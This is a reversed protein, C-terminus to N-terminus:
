YPSGIGVMFEIHCGNPPPAPTTPPTTSATHFYSAHPSPLAVSTLIWTSPLHFPPPLFATHPHPGSPTPEWGESLNGRPRVVCLRRHLGVVASGSWLSLALLVLRLPLVWEISMLKAIGKCLGNGLHDSLAKSFPIALHLPDADTQPGYSQYTCAWSNPLNLRSIPKSLM